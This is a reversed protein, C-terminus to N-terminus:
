THHDTADPHSSSLVDQSRRLDLLDDDVVRITDTLSGFSIVLAGKRRDWRALDLTGELDGIAAPHVWSSPLGVDGLDVISPHIVLGLEAREFEVDGGGHARRHEQVITEGVEILVMSPVHLREILVLELPFEHGLRRDPGPATVGQSQVPGTEWIIGASQDGIRDEVIGEGTRGQEIDGSLVRVISRILHRIFADGPIAIPGQVPRRDVRPIM